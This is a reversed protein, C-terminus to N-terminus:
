EHGAEKESLGAYELLNKEKLVKMPLNVWFMDDDDYMDKVEQQVSYLTRYKGHPGYLNFVAKPESCKVINYKQLIDLCKGIAVRNNNNNPAYGLQALVSNEGGSLSFTYPSNTFHAINFTYRHALLIFLKILMNKSKYNKFLWNLIMPKCKIYTQNMKGIFTIMDDKIYIVQHKKFCELIKEQTQPALSFYHSMAKKAVDVPMVKDYPKGKEANGQILACQKLLAYVLPKYEKDKLIEKGVPISVTNKFKFLEIM